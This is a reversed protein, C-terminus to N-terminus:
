LMDFEAIFSLSTVSRNYLKKCWFYMVNIFNM